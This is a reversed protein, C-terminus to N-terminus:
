NKIKLIVDIKHNISTKNLRFTEFTQMVTAFRECNEWCARVNYFPKRNFFLIIFKRNDTAVGGWQGRRGSLREKIKGLFEDSIDHRHYTVPKNAKM